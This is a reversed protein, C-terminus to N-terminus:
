RELPEEREDILPHQLGVIPDLQRSPTITAIAGDFAGCADAFSGPPRRAKAPATPL